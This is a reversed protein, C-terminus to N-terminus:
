GIIHDDYLRATVGVGDCEIIIQMVTDPPPRAPSKGGAHFPQGGFLRCITQPDLDIDSKHLNLKIFM